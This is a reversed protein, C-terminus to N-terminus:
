DQDGSSSEDAPSAGHEGQVVTALRQYLMLLNAAMASAETRSIKEGFEEKYIEIFEDLQKDTIRPYVPHMGTPIYRKRPDAMSEPNQRPPM